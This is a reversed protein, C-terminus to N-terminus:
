ETRRVQFRITAALLFVTGLIALAVTQHILDDEMAAELAVHLESPTMHSFVARYLALLFPASGPPGSGECGKVLRPSAGLRALSKLCLFRVM